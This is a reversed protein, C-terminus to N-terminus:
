FKWNLDVMLHSSSSESGAPVPNILQNRYYTVTLNLSDYLSYAAQVQHGKVNTGGRFGTAGGAPAVQYFAGNDDDVLEEYWADADLRQYRYAIQWQGKKGAKGFQVGARYGKNQSGVAPNEIYEGSLKIPFAGNYIPFSDLKYTFSASGVVPNYNDVLNGLGDRTNGGTVDPVAANGLNLKNGLTFASIGISSELKKNWKANWLLQAGLLYPDHSAGLGQNLEDLVFIASNFKLAHADNLNYAAQFAGGEPQYDNDFVMNSIDFPNDMKGITASATWTGNHLPTWKAYAADIFVFKKSGNDQFTTNNSVPNGGFGGVADASTLRFGIEFDDKLTATLGARLRYRYRTRGTFAPNESDFNEFRGRFDGGFKFSNVWDPMATEKRYNKDFDGKAEERLDKAEETTLIGKQVLKDLLPDSSQAVTNACFVVSALAGATTWKTKRNKM